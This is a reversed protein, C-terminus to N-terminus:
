TGSKVPPSLRRQSGPLMNRLVDDRWFFHHILAAAAHFGALIIITWATWDHIHDVFHGTAKSFEGFPSPINLGFFVLPHNDTWRTAFGLLMQVVLLTYLLHHMLKALIATLGMTGNGVPRGAFGGRALSVVLLITLIIGLTMHTSILFHRTPHPFDDWFEALLFQTIVLLAIAWHLFM